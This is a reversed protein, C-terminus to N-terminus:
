VGAVPVPLDRNMADSKPIVVLAALKLFERRARPLVFM